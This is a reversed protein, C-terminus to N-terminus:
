RTSKVNQQIWSSVIAQVSSRDESAAGAHFRKYLVGALNVFRSMMDECEPEDEVLILIPKGQGMLFGLEHALNITIHRSDLEKTVLVIGAPATWLKTSVDMYITFPEKMLTSAAEVPYCNNELLSKRINELTLSRLTADSFRHSVFIPITDPKAFEAKLPAKYARIALALIDSPRAVMEEPHWIYVIRELRGYSHRHLSRRGPSRAERILNVLVLTLGDADIAVRLAPADDRVISVGARRRQPRARTWRLM